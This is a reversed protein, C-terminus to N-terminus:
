PSRDVHVLDIEELTLRHSVVDPEYGCEGCDAEQDVAKEPALERLGDDRPDGAEGEKGREHDRRKDEDLEQLERRLGPEELLVDVVPDGRALEGRVDAEPDIGKRDDHAQHDGPTPKRM